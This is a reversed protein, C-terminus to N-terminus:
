CHGSEKRCVEWSGKNFLDMIKHQLLEIRALPLKLLNKVIYISNVTLQAGELQAALCVSGTYVEHHPGHLILLTLM